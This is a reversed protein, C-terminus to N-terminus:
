KWSLSVDQGEKLTFSGNEVNWIKGSGIKEIDSINCSTIFIQFDDIHKTIFSRRYSDLESLVDDLIIVPYDGSKDTILKAEALKLAVAISRIQGQSAYDKAPMNNICFSIDDRHAGVTTYKMRIDRESSERLRELYTNYMIDVDDATFQVDKMVSSEYALSLKEGSGNLLEYFHDAAEALLNFYRIRGCMVNVGYRAITENWSELMLRVSDDYETRKMLINNKQRLAKNYEYLKNNHVRNIMNSVYDIYDRRKEPNGKVIYLDEPIFLVYRLAGYLKEAEKIEIGNFKLSYSNNKQTYLVTNEKDKMNDFSFVTEVATEGGSVRFPLMETIKPNRFSKGLCVSIAECLNTKGQANNGTFINVKPDFIFDASAINRFNRVSLSKIIM